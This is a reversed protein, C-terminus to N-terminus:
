QNVMWKEAKVEKRPKIMKIAQSQEKDQVTIKLSPSGKEFHFEVAHKSERM